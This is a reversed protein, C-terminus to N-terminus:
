ANSKSFSKWERSSWLEWEPRTKIPQPPTMFIPRIEATANVAKATYTQVLGRKSDLGGFASIM